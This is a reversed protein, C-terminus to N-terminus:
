VLDSPQGLLAPIQPAAENIKTIYQISGSTTQHLRGNFTMLLSSNFSM